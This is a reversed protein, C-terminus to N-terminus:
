IPQRLLVTRSGERGRWCLEAWQPSLLAAKLPAPEPKPAPQQGTQLRGVQVCGAFDQGCLECIVRTHSDAFDENDTTLTTRPQPQSTTPEM